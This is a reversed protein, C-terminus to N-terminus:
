EGDGVRDWPWERVCEEREMRERMEDELCEMRWATYLLLGPFDRVVDVM